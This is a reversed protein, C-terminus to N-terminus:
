RDPLKILLSFSSPRAQMTWWLDINAGYWDQKMKEIGAKGLILVSNLIETLSVWEGGSRMKLYILDINAWRQRSTGRKKESNGWHLNCHPEAVENPTIEKLIRLHFEGPWFCKAWRTFSGPMKFMIRGSRPRKIRSDSTWEQREPSVLM